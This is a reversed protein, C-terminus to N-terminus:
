PGASSEGEADLAYRLIHCRDGTGVLSSCIYCDDRRADSRINVNGRLGHYTLHHNPERLGSRHFLFETVALHAVVGNLSVVAPAPGDEGTGYGHSRAIRRSEPDALDTRAQDMDLQQACDLCYHGPRAFIVRGGFDILRDDEPIIETALDIYVREYAAALESLVLRPGDHDVCGFIFPCKQLALLVERSRLDRPICHVKVNPDAAHVLREAVVTKLTEAEADEPGAGVLRNLNTEDVHDDDILLMSGVGLYALAQVVLSGIGGLGVVAVHSEAILKQGAEGVVPLQRAFRRETM